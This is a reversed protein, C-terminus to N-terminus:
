RLDDVSRSIANVHEDTIPGVKEIRKRFTRKLNARVSDTIVSSRCQMALTIEQRERHTGRSSLGQLMLILPFMLMVAIVIILPYEERNGFQDNILAVTACVAFYDSAVEERLVGVNLPRTPDTISAKYDFEGTYGRVLNYNIRYTEDACVRIGAPPNV